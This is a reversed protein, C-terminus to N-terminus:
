IGLCRLVQCWLSEAQEPVGLLQEAPVKLPFRCTLVPYGSESVSGWGEPNIAFHLMKGLGVRYVYTMVKGSSDYSATGVQEADGDEIWSGFRKTLMTHDFTVRIAVEQKGNAIDGWTLHFDTVKPCRDYLVDPDSTLEMYRKAMVPVFDDIVKYKERHADYEDLLDALDSTALFGACRQWITDLRAVEAPLHRRALHVEVARVMTEYVISDPASYGQFRYTNALRPLLKQVAGTLSPLYPALAPNVFPHSFEHMVVPLDQEQFQANGEKDFHYAGIIPAMELAGNPYEVSMGYNGGGCLMGVIVRPPFKPARGFFADMTAPVHYKEILAQLSATSQKLHPEEKKLFADYHTDKVFLRLDAVLKRTEVLNLRSDWRKPPLDFPVKEKLSHIDSLNIALLAVADYAVSFKTRLLEADKVAPHEKFPAFAADVDRSYPSASNPEKFEESGALRFVTTLLEVRPDIQVRIAPRFALSSLFLSAILMAANYWVHYLVTM